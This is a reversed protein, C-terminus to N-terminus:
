SEEELFDDIVKSSSSSPVAGAEVISFFTVNWGITVLLATGNYSSFGGGNSIVVMLLVDVDALLVVRLSSDSDVVKVPATGAAPLMNSTSANVLMVMWLKSRCVLLVSADADTHM